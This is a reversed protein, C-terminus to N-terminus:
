FSSLDTAQSFTLLPTEALVATRNNLYLDLMRLAYALYHYLM